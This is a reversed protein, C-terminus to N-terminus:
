AVLIMLRSQHEKHSYIVTCRGENRQEALMLQPEYKELFHRLSHQIYAQSSNMEICLECM